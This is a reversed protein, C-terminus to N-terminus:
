KLRDINLLDSDDLALALIESGPQDQVLWNSWRINPREDPQVSDGARWEISISAGCRLARVAALRALGPVQDDHYAGTMEPHCKGSPHIYVHGTVILGVGGAALERYFDYYQERPNGAEDAMREATASRIMRNSTGLTGIKGPTFLLSM